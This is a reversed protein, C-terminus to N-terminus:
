AGTIDWFLLLILLCSFTELRIRPSVVGGTHVKRVINGHYCFLGVLRNNLFRNNLVRYQQRFHLLRFLLRCCVDSVHLVSGRRVAVDRLVAFADVGNDQDVHLRTMPFSVLVPFIWPLATPITRIVSLLRLLFAVVSPSM